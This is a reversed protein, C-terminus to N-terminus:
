IWLLVKGTRLFNKGIGLRPVVEFQGGKTKFLILKLLYLNKTSAKISLLTARHYVKVTGLLLPSYCQGLGPASDDVRSNRVPETM